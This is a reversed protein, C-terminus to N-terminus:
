TLISSPASANSISDIVLKGGGIMRGNNSLVTKISEYDNSAASVYDSYDMSSKKGSNEFHYHVKYVNTTGM